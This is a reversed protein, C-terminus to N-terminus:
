KGVDDAHPAACLQMTASCTPCQAEHACGFLSRWLKYRAAANKLTTDVKAEHKCAAGATCLGARGEQCMSAAAAQEARREAAAEEERLQREEQERVGPATQGALCSEIVALEAASLDRCAHEKVFHILPNQVDDADCDCGNRAALARVFPALYRSRHHAAWLLAHHKSCAQNCSACLIWLNRAESSGPATHLPVIHAVHWENSIRPRGSM